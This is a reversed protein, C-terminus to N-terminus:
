RSLVEKARKEMLGLLFGADSAADLPDRKELQEIASKLWYSIGPNAMIAARTENYTKM